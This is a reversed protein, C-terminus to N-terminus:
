YKEASYELFICSLLEQLILLNLSPFHSSLEWRFKQLISEPDAGPFLM